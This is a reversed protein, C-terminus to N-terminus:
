CPPREDGRTGRSFCAEPPRGRPASLTARHGLLVDCGKGGYRKEVEPLVEEILRETQALVFAEDM